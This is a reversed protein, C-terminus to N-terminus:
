DGFIGSVYDFLIERSERSNSRSALALTVREPLEEDSEFAAATRKLGKEVAARADTRPTASLDDGKGFARYLAAGFVVYFIAKNTLRTFGIREGFTDEILAMVHAFRFEVFERQPFETDYQEYIKDISRQSRSSLGNLIFMYLESVFEAEDMRAIQQESFIGWRRWRHLNALSGEYVSQIFQGFFRANRLEQWNLKMGTANMRRFIDLVQSDATDPPLVHVPIQYALIAKRVRDDFESFRKGALDINHSKSVLFEDQTPNFDRLAKPEIFSILTRLRQQGDVVERTTALTDIDTSERLFVIPIPLGRSVTDIFYSKAKPPWVPRRQFSPSLSLESARSWSLFNAVTFTTRQLSLIDFMFRSAGSARWSAVAGL